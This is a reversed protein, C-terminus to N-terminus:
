AGPCKRLMEWFSLFFFQETTSRGIDWICHQSFLFLLLGTIKKKTLVTCGLLLLTGTGFPNVSQSVNTKNDVNEDVRGNIWWNIWGHTAALLMKMQPFALPVFLSSFFPLTNPPSCLRIGRVCYSVRIGSVCCRALGRCGQALCCIIGMICCTQSQRFGGHGYKDLNYLVTGSVHHWAAAKLASKYIGFGPVCMRRIGMWSAEHVSNATKTVQNSM